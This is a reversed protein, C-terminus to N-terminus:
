AGELTELFRLPIGAWPSDREREYSLEWLARQVECSVLIAQVSDHQPLITPEICREYASLLVTRSRRLWESRNADRTNPNQSAFISAAYDLSRFLTAIDYLPLAQERHHSPPWGPEGSFDVIMWPHSHLLQDLHLDGHIRIRKGGLPAPTTTARIRSILRDRNISLKATETPYRAIVNDLAEITTTACDSLYHATLPISHFTAPATESALINHLEATVTGIEDLATMWANSFVGHEYWETLAAYAHASATADSKIYRQALVILSPPADNRIYTITGLLPPIHQAHLASLVDLMEIEVSPGPDIRRTHKFFESEGRVFYENSHETTTMPVISLDRNTSLGSSRCCLTGQQSPINANDVMLRVLLNSHESGSFADFVCLGDITALPTRQQGGNDLPTIEVPIAYPHQTGVIFLVLSPQDSLVAVDDFTIASTAGDCRVFWPQDALWTLLPGHLQTLFRESLIM